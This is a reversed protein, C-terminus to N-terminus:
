VRLNTLSMAATVWHTLMALCGDADSKGKGLKKVQEEPIGLVAAIPRHDRLGCGESKLMCLLLTHIVCIM